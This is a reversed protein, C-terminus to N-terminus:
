GIMNAIEDLNVGPPGQRFRMEIYSGSPAELTAVSVRDTRWIEDMRAKAETEDDFREIRDDHPYHSIKLTFKDAHPPRQPGVPLGLKEREADVARQAEDAKRYEFNAEGSTAGYTRIVSDRDRKAHALRAELYRLHDTNM